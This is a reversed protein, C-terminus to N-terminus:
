GLPRQEAKGFHDWGNATPASGDVTVSHETREKCTGVVFFQPPLPQNAAFTALMGHNEGGTLVWQMALARARVDDAAGQLIHQAVPILPTVASELQASDIDISVLSADALRQADKVLGDSIDMMSHAVTAAAIGAQVAALPRQQATIFSSFDSDKGEDPAIKELLEFGAAATGLAGAVAVVDGVQAGSRLVPQEVCQGMAAVTVSLEASAGLDGGSITCFNAQHAVCSETIGRAFDSAWAVPTQPPLSLSVVLTGPVAGMAAIDALNQAAAKWGVDYGCSSLGSPWHTRFDQNETQTDTSIVTPKNGLSFVACDDGPGVTMSTDFRHHAVNQAVQLNHANLIPLFEQLLASESVNKVCPSIM